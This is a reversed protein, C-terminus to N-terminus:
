LAENGVGAGFDTEGHLNDPTIGDILEALTNERIPQIIIVGNEERVDVKADVQLGAAKMVAAPIRVSPSNGWKKITVQMYTAM